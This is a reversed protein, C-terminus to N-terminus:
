KKYNEIGFGMEGKKLGSFIAVLAAILLLRSASSSTVGPRAIQTLAALEFRKIATLSELYPNFKLTVNLLSASSFYLTTPVINSLSPSAEEAYTKLGANYEIIIIL